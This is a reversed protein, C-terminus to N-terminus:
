ILDGTHVYMSSNKKVPICAADLAASNPKLKVVVLAEQRQYVTRDGLLLVATLVTHWSGVSQM